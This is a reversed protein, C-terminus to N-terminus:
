IFDKSESPLVICSTRSPPLRTDSNSRTEHRVKFQHKPIGPVVCCLPGLQERNLPLALAKTSVRWGVLLRCRIVGTHISYRFSAVSRPSFGLEKFMEESIRIRIYAVYHYSSIARSILQGIILSEFQLEFM